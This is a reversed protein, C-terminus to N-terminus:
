IDSYLEKCKRVMKLEQPNEFRYRGMAGKLETCEARTVCGAEKWAAEASSLAAQTHWEDGQGAGPASAATAAAERDKALKECKSPAQAQSPAGPRARTLRPAREKLAAELEEKIIQKLQKKTIKM